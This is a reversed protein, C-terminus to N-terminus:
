VCGGRRGGPDQGDCGKQGMYSVEPIPPVEEGEQGLKLSSFSTSGLHARISAQWGAHLAGPWTCVLPYVETALPQHSGVARLAQEWFGM